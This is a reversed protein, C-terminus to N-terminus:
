RAAVGLLIETAAEPAFYQLNHGTALTHFTWESNARAQQAFPAFDDGDPKVTCHVYTRPVRAAAGTVRIPQLFTQLPQPGRRPTVWAVIDPPTDPALPRPPLQWVSQLTSVQKERAARAEPSLLDVLSKGDPPVFADLYVLHRLRPATRDAVGTVVMGGYSHGALIVGNLDEYELVNVVDQIHTDLNTEPRGLHSREGLGTLTPTFVEHGAAQLLARVHRWSWGGGWAGHVIVFTAM